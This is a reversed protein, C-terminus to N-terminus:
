SRTQSSTGWVLHSTTGRSTHWLSSCSTQLSSSRSSQWVTGSHLFCLCFFHQSSGLSFHMLTVTFRGLSTQRGSAVLVLISVFTSSHYDFPNKSNEYCKAHKMKVHLM